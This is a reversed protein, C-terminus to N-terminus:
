TPAASKRVTKEERKLEKRKGRREETDFSIKHSKNRILARNYELVSATNM